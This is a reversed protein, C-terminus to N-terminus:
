IRVEKQFLRMRLMSIFNPKHKEIHRIIESTRQSMPTRESLAKGFGLIGDQIGKAWYKAYGDRVSYVLMASLGIFLYKVAYFFPFNRAALWFLNRTDYYYRRWNTRGLNSHHHKVAIVPNYIVNYGNNMLRIALDPGEHSIFFTEPYLGSKELASRRFAVAGETIENTVFIKDAFKELPYHHCWNMVQETVPDLVKFCVAGTQPNDFLSPLIELAKDDLGLIDDDLTVIIDGSANAIGKNRGEIGVNRGMELLLVRPFEAEIMEAPSEEPHNNVVIMELGPCTMEALSSLLVRLLTKRNFTLIVISIKINKNM